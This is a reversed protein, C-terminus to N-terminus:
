FRMDLLPLLSWIPTESGYPYPSFRNLWLCEQGEYTDEDLMYLFNLVKNLEGYIQNYRIKSIDIHTSRSKKIKKELKTKIAINSVFVICPGNFVAEIVRPEMIAPKISYDTTPDPDPRYFCYGKDESM